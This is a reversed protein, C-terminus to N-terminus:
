AALRIVEALRDVDEETHATSLFGVEWPSPPLYVGQSLAARFLDPYAGVGQPPVGHATRIVGQHAAPCLWFISGHRQLSLGQLGKLGSELRADESDAFLGVVNPVVATMSLFKDSTNDIVTAHRGAVM